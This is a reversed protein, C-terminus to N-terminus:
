PRRSIEKVTPRIEVTPKIEKVTPRPIVTTTTKVAKRVEIRTVTTNRRGTKLRIRSM